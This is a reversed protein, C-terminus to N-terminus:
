HNFTPVPTPAPADFMPINVYSMLGQWSGMEPPFKGLDEDLVLRNGYETKNHGHLNYFLEDYPKDRNWIAYKFPQLFHLTSQTPTLGSLDAEPSTFTLDVLQHLTHNAAKQAVVNNIIDILGMLEQSTIDISAASNLTAEKLAGIYTDSSVKEGAYVDDIENAFEVITNYLEPHDHELTQLGDIRLLAVAMMIVTSQGIPAHSAVMVEGTDNNCFYSLAKIKTKYVEYLANVERQSIVGNDISAVLGKYSAATDLPEIIHLDSYGLNGPPNFNEGKAQALKLEQQIVFEMSHNSMLIELNVNEQILKAILKLMFYDNKGRDFLDDGLLSLLAGATVDMNDIIYDFIEKDQATLENPNKLYIELLKAYADCPENQSNMYIEDSLQVIGHKIAFFMLKMMNGHLDGIVSKNKCCWPIDVPQTQREFMASWQTTTSSGQRANRAKRTAPAYRQLNRSNKDPHLMLDVEDVWFEVIEDMRAM